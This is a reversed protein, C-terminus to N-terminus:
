ADAAAEAVGGMVRRRDIGVLGLLGQHHEARGQESPHLDAVSAAMASAALRRLNKGPRTWRCSHTATAATKTGARRVRPWREQVWLTARPTGSARPERNM